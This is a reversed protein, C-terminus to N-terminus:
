VAPRISCRQKWTSSAIRSREFIDGYELDAFVAKDETLELIRDKLIKAGTWPKPYFVIDFAFLIGNEIKWRSKFFYREHEKYGEERVWEYYVIFGSATGNPCYTKEGYQKEGRGEDVYTGAWTGVLKASYEDDSVAHSRFAPQIALLALVSMALGIRVFRRM